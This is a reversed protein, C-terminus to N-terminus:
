ALVKVESNGFVSVDNEFGELHFDVTSATLTRVGDQMWGAMIDSAVRITYGRVKGIVSFSDDETTILVRRGVVEPTLRDARVSAEPFINPDIPEDRPDFPSDTM